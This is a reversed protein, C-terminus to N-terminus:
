KKYGLLSNIDNFVIRNIKNNKLEKKLMTETSKYFIANGIITYPYELSKEGIIINQKECIKNCKSNYDLNIAGCYRTASINVYPYYVTLKIKKNINLKTNWPLLDLEYRTINNKIMFEQVEFATLYSSQFYKILTNPIQKAQAIVQKGQETIIKMKPQKNEFIKQVIPDKRQKNLLRGLVPKLNKYQSVLMFTGWDNFVVETKEKKSNLFNLLRNVLCVKANTIFPLVLVFKIKNNICFKYCHETQKINPIKNQCFEDGFYLVDTQKLKKLDQLKNTIFAIEM